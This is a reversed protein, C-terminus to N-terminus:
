EVEKRVKRLMDEFSSVDNRDQKRMMLKKVEIMETLNTGIADSLREECKKIMIKFLEESERKDFAIKANTENTIDELATQM